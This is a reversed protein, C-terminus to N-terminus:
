AEHTREKQSGHNAKQELNFKEITKQLIYKKEEASLKAKQFLKCLFSYRRSKKMEKPDNPLVESNKDITPDTIEEIEINEELEITDIM